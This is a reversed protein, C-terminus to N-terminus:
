SYYLTFSICTQLISYPFHSSYIVDYVTLPNLFFVFMRPNLSPLFQLSIIFHYLFLLNIHTQLISYLFHPSSIIDYVTEPNVYYLCAQISLIFFFSLFHYFLSSFLIFNFRTQQISYLSHPFSFCCWLCNISKSFLFMLLNLSLLFQLFTIFYHLFIYLVSIHKFRILSILPRFIIFM